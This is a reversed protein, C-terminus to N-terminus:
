VFGATLTVGFPWYRVHIPAEQEPLGRNGRRERRALSSSAPIDTRIL